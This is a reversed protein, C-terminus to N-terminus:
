ESSFVSIRINKYLFRKVSCSLCSGVCFDFKDICIAEFDAAADSAAGTGCTKFLASIVIADDFIIELHQFVLNPLCVTQNYASRYIDELRNTLIFVEHIPKGAAM